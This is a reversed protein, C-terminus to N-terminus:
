FFEQRKELLFARFREIEAIKSRNGREIQSNFDFLYNGWEEASDILRLQAITPITADAPTGEYCTWYAPLAGNLLSRRARLPSAYPWWQNQSIHLEVDYGEPVKSDHEVYLIRTKKTNSGNSGFEVEPFRQLVKRRYSTMRGSCYIHPPFRNSLEEVDIKPYFPEICFSPKGFITSLPEIVSPSTSVFCDFLDHWRQLWNSRDAYEILRLIEIGFIKEFQKAIISNKFRSLFINARSRGIYRNLGKAIHFVAFQRRLFCNLYLRNRRVMGHETAVFILTSKGKIRYLDALSPFCGDIVLNDIGSTPSSVITVEDYISISDLTAQLHLVLDETWRTQGHPLVIGCSIGRKDQTQM